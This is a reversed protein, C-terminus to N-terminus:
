EEMGGRGELFDRHRMAMIKAIRAASYASYLGATWHKVAGNCVLLKM